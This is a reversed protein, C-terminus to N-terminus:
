VPQNLLGEFGRAKLAAAIQYFPIGQNWEAYALTFDPDGAHHLAMLDWNLDFCPSGSSGPDTNTQYRVRTQNRNLGLLGNPGLALEMPRGRPHQVILVSGPPTLGAAATPVRVWGRPAEARDTTGTPNVPKRGFPDALRLVAYDLAAPDPLRDRPDVLLDVPDHAASAVLWPKEMQGTTNPYTMGGAVSLPVATGERVTTSARTARYDFRARVNDAPHTGDIVKEVVHRATVVLDPGILFGTGIGNPHAGLIEIRCVWPEIEGLRERWVEVPVNPLGPIVQRQLAEGSPPALVGQDLAQALARLKPNKPRVDLAATLLETEIGRMRAAESVEFVFNAAKQGENPIDGPDWKARQRLMRILGPVDLAFAEVLADYLETLQENTM